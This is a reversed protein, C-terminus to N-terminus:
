KDQQQEWQSPTYSKIALAHITGNRIHEDVSDYVMRQRQLLSKGEFEPSVVVVAVNCGDGTINVESNNISAEILAKIDDNNV